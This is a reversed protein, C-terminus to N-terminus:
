CHLFTHCRIFRLRVGDRISCLLTYVVKWDWVLEGSYYIGITTHLELDVCLSEIVMNIMIPTTLRLRGLSFVGVLYGLDSM